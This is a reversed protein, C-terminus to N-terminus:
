RVEITEDDLSGSIRGPADTTDFLGGDIRFSSTREQDDGGGGGGAGGMGGMMGGMMGMGGAGPAASTGGPASGLEAGPGTSPADFGASSTDGLEGDIFGTTAPAEGFLDTGSVSETVSQASTSEDLGASTVSQEAQTDPVDPLAHRGGGSTQPAAAADTKVGPDGTSANEGLTYKTPEGKGDDVTVVTPGDQGEPREATIKLAGDEIHIKGDSGPHHAEDTGQPAVPTAVANPDAPMADDFDLKYDKPRGSGDDVAIGMKGDKDPEEMSIKHDGQQVTVTERAPTADKIAEGTKPDIPYPEGTAPDTELPQHTV